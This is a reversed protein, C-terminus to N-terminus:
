PLVPSARGRRLQFRRGSVHSPELAVLDFRYGDVWPARVTEDLREHEDDELRRIRGRVEVSWAADQGFWDVEFAVSEGLAAALLKNGATTRFLVVGDHVTHNVPVVHIEDVLRYALRGVEEQAVLAWCEDLALESGRAEDDM